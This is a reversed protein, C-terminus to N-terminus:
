LRPDGGLAQLFHTDFLQHNGHSHLREALFNYRQPAEAMRIHERQQSHRHPFSEKCHNRFPHDISIDNLEDLCMPIRVPELKYPRVGVSIEGTASSIVRSLEFANGLPQQIHMALPHYM